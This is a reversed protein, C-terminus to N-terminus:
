WPSEARRASPPPARSIPRGRRAAPSHAFRRSPLCHQGIFGAQLAARQLAGDEVAGVERADGGIRLAHDLDEVDAGLAHQAVRGCLHHVRDRRRVNGIRLFHNRSGLRQADFQFRRDGRAELRQDELRRAADLVDILQGIDALVAAPKGGDHRHRRQAIRLFADDSVQQDAGVVRSALLGLLRQELGARQLARDEVTGVERADRGVRLAHDLDEVDTGLAHQAIGGGVHQVRDRGGVDRIGLFHDRPGRGEADFELRGNCRTEFREDELCRAPDLVDVFQGVDALVPAAQGRHDRHRGQPVRLLGDDAVQQDTGVVRGALLDFGFLALQRLAQAIVLEVRPRQEFGVDVGQHGGIRRADDGVDVLLHLRQGTTRAVLQDAGRELIEEGIGIAGLGADVQHQALLLHGVVFQRRAVPVALLGHHGVVRRGQVVAIPHELPHKGGRAVDGLALLVLRGQPLGSVLRFLRVIGLALEEGVHAVLDARRHIRDDAQRVQEPLRRQIELLGIKEGLDAQGALRQEDHDVVHQVQRLDFGPLQDHLSGGEAQGIEDLFQGVDHRRLEVGLAEFELEVHRGVNGRRQEAVGRAEALDQGIQQGVGHLERIASAHMQADTRQGDVGRAHRKAEDHSIRANTDGGRNLGPQECGEGLGIGRDGAAKATGSQAQRDDLAEHTQHAAVHAQFARGSGAALELDDQVKREGRGLVKCHQLGGRKRWALVREEAHADQDDVVAM